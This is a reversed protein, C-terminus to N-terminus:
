GDRRAGEPDYLVPEAVTVAVTHDELPAYLTDGARQTGGKVLGLAFTRGLAASMYSSTIHGVMARGEPEEVLQAGEPLRDGPDLPLLAVLRKRGPDLAGARAHSRRGVFDGKAKDVIWGMGLDHPTQTGDTEQGVIVYGKEARLVHMAETGYPTAGADMVAEWVHLADHAVVSVEFALEGSFSVRAIRAPVGAVSGERMRLFGFAEASLDVDPTLGALLERSRPGAV